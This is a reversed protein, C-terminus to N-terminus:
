KLACLNKLFFNLYFEELRSTLCPPLRLTAPHSQPEFKTRTKHFVTLAPKVSSHSRRVATQCHCARAEPQVQVSELEEGTRLQLKSALRCMFCAGEGGGGAHRQRESGWELDTKEQSAELSVLHSCASLKWKRGRPQNSRLQCLCCGAGSGRHIPVRLPPSLTSSRARQEGLLM